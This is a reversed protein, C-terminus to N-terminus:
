ASVNAFSALPAGQRAGASGSPCGHRGCGVFLNTHQRQAISAHYRLSRELEPKRFGRSHRKLGPLEHIDVNISGGSVSASPLVRANEM